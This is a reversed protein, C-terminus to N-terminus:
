FIQILPLLSLINGRDERAGAPVRVSPHRTPPTSSRPNPALASGQRPRGHEPHERGRGGQRQDIIAMMRITLALVLDAEVVRCAFTKRKM